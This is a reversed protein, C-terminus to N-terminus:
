AIGTDHSQRIHFCAPRRFRQSQLGTDKGREPSVASINLDTDVTLIIDTVNEFSLRYREELAKLKQHAIELDLLKKELKGFLIENYQRFFEMEEGLPNPSGEKVTGQELVEKLTRILMDPEQPKIIFREAGLSLAFKEDKSETYTATYFIFPIKKFQEHSKCQRCLAYGDMVPMLIDSIIMDPPDAHVRDLAEQGDAATIVDYSEEELLSKLLCLNTSNDDVILIKKTM